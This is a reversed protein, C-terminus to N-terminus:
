GNKVSSEDLLENVETLKDADVVEKLKRVAYRIVDTKRVTTISKSQFYDVLYALDEQDEQNLTLNLNKTGSM